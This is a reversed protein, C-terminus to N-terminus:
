LAAAPVFGFFYALLSAPFQDIASNYAAVAANYRAEAERVVQTNDEWARQLQAVASAQRPDALEAHRRAWVVHVTAYATQLAAVTAADLPQRAALRLAVEFQVMVGHLGSRSSAASDPGTASTAGDAAVAAWGAPAPVVEGLLALTQEMRQEVGAFSGIVQARLRVLRNYAGLWWFLLVALASLLWFLGSGSMM